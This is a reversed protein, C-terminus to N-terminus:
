GGAFRSFKRRKVVMAASIELKQCVTAAAQGAAEMQEAERLKRIIQETTHRKRKM